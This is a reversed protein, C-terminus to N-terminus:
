RLYKRLYQGTYSAECRSVEEPTGSTVVTGGGAGGEPGLDIIYDAVKIVDLNHEIVVVTNGGETLRQLIDILKHVDAFHLGTTPEDLIYITKGTSRRSLETALKIRQAEGGSLTTSPQGLKIYGLGVDRLTEIKRRIAPMNEFFECTEDVTMDLVESINKGKYRVELTERNYRKGGCVECPVYIDPLFHMEIKNMGDGRCAECRGGSVNFSFRGKQYGMAKADKTGAFLDRILDFVGTYTAPNSRPTRGIPSQDIDIVKDLAEYGIIDDHEGPKVRARNLDRSLRKKLIENILSSKGSGSVGTICTFVGLPVKV